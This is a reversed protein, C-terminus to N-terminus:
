SALRQEGRGQGEAFPGVADRALATAEALPMPEGFHPGQLANCGILRLFFAQGETEVGAAAVTLRLARGLSAISRLITSADRDTESGGLLSRDVKVTDVPLRGLAGLGAEFGDLVLSVGLEKVASLDAVIAPECADAGSIGLQLRRPELGSSGLAARVLPALGGSAQMPALDVAVSLPDPWAAAAACARRLVLAGLEGAQGAERALAAVVASPAWGAATRLRAKAEFGLLHWGRTDFIPEFLLDLHADADRLRAELDCRAILEAEIPPTFAVVSSGAPRRARDLALDAARILGAAHKGDAPMCATGIRADLHLDHGEVRRPAGIAAALEAALREAEPAAGKLRLRAVAFATGGLRAVLADPGALAKLDDGVSRLAADGADHGHVANVAKIGRVEVCLLAIEQARARQAGILADLEALFQGRHLLGTMPERRALAAQREASSPRAARHRRPAILAGGLLTGFGLAAAARAAEPLAAEAGPLVPTLITAFAAGAISSWFAHSTM